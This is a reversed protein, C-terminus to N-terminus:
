RDESIAQVAGVPNEALSEALEELSAVVHGVTVFASSPLPLESRILFEITGGSIPLSINM